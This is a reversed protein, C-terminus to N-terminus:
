ARASARKAVNLRNRARKVRLERFRYEPDFLTMGSLKEEAKKLYQNALDIDIDEPREAAECLLTVKDAAVEAFGEAVAVYKDAGGAKYRVEGPDTECFFPSHGELVGFEGLLGPAYIEEVVGKFLTKDPAVITLEIKEAM